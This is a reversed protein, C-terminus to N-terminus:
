RGGSDRTILEVVADVAALAVLPALKDWNGDLSGAPVTNAQELDGIQQGDARKVFWRVVVRQRGDVAPGLDVSGQVEFVGTDKSNVLVMQSEGLARRMASTLARSGAASPGSVTAVLVRPAK